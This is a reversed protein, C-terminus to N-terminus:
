AEHSYDSGVPIGDVVYLPQTGSNLSGRGRVLVSGWSGPMSTSVAMQVGTVTGELNKVFNADSKKELADGDVKAATGTFATRSVTGYGTFILADLAEADIELRIVAADAAKVEQTKMGICSVRVVAKSPVKSLHFAGNMDTTVGISTGVIQVTAGIVPQGDEAGIVKGSLNSQAFALGMSILMSSAILLLKKFM